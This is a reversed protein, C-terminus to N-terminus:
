IIEPGANMSDSPIRGQFELEQMRLDKVYQLLRQSAIMESSVPASNAERLCYHIQAVINEMAATYAHHTQVYESCTRGLEELAVEGQIIRRMVAALDADNRRIKLCNLGDALQESAGCDDSIIPVCGAAAAELVVFGFPESASTPFLLCDYQCFLEHLHEQGLQGHFRCIDQLGLTSMEHAYHIINGPGYFDIHFDARGEGALIAAAKLILPVGKQEGIYGAFIFRTMNDKQYRSRRTSSAPAWVNMVKCQQRIDIGAALLANINRPSSIYRGSLFCDGKAANFLDLVRPGINETLYLPVSDMLHFIWPLGLTNAIDIIALGGIGLLNYFLILDPKVESIHQLFVSSNHFSSVQSKLRQYRLVAAEQINAINYANLELCRVVFDPDKSTDHCTTSTLLRVHMGISALHRAVTMCAIEYGGNAHPPCLNSLLLIKLSM